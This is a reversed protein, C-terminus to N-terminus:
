IPKGVNQQKFCAKYDADPQGIEPPLLGSGPIMETNPMPAVEDTAYNEPTFGVQQLTHKRQGVKWNKRRAQLSFTFSWRQSLPAGHFFAYQM